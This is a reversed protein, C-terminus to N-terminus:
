EPIFVDGDETVFDNGDETVFYPSGIVLFRRVQRQWSERGANVSYVELRGNFTDSATM